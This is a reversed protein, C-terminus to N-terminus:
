HTRKEILYKQYKKKLTNPQNNEIIHPPISNWTKVTRYLPCKEYKTTRHKPLNLKGEIAQRTKENPIYELYKDTLNQSSKNMLAKKIFVAEHVQRKQQLNLFKMERLIQKASDRKRRNKIIRLAFNQATQLKNAYTKSCGNWVVDAYSFHPTVITNYLLVKTKESLINRMRNLNLIANMSKKKAYKIQANWNLKQDIYIGLIKIEAKPEICIPKGENMLEIKLEKIQEQEKEKGIVLIETKDVNNKM